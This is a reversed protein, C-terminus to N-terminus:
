SGLNYNKQAILGEPNNLHTLPKARIPIHELVRTLIGEMETIATMGESAVFTFGMNKGTIRIVVDRVM